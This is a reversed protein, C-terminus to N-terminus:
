QVRGRMEDVLRPVDLTRIRLNAIGVQGIKLDGALEYDVAVSM